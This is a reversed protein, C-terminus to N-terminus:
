LYGWNVAKDFILMLSFEFQRRGYEILVKWRICIGFRVVSYHFRFTLETGAHGLVHQLWGAQRNTYTALCISFDAHTPMDSTGDWQMERSEIEGPRLKSWESYAWLLKWRKNITRSFSSNENNMQSVSPIRPVECKEETSNKIRWNKWKESLLLLDNWLEVHSYNVNLFTPVFNKRGSSNCVLNVNLVCMFFFINLIFLISVSYFEMGCLTHKFVWDNTWQGGIFTVLCDM